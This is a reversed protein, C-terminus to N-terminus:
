YRGLELGREIFYKYTDYEVTNPISHDSQLFYAFGEKVVPIKAELERDIAARDNSYIVRVDIGGMLAIKDGFNKYIRLLDMGAKIEMAQLCDIGAEVMYPLLPEIFGCSHMLVKLNKSHAFDCTLKHAPQIFHRYMAPSMFPRGKFGMDESFWIGDPPGEREFLIEWMEVLVRSYTQCMDTVWDPDDIMAMMFYEHGCVPHIMEFVNVGSWVLFKSHEAAYQKSKRYSEFNIRRTDAFIHPKILEEWKERSDVTFAIHEPTSNHKKHRRLIAYNQTKVTITDEDEAIVESKYDLNGAFNFVKSRYIDLNFHLTFDTGDDIKGEASWSKRTDSWFNEWLGIRDPKKRNLLLEARERGTLESM